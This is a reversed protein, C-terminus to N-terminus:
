SRHGADTQLSTLLTILESLGAMIKPKMDMIDSVCQTTAAAYLHQSLAHLETDGITGALAIMVHSNTRLAAFDPGNWALNFNSQTTKLDDLLAAILAAAGTPGAFVLLRDLPATDIPRSVLM